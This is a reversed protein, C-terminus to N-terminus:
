LFDDFKAPLEKIETSYYKEISRMKEVDYKTVFNIAVGKRGWRGSRGIRHLYTHADKPIDYNVVVSVQQVDLGRATVNSSIMVRYKGNKFEDYASNRDEREMESHICCVPFNSQKMSHYLDIVRKVSNCYIISQSVSIGEYLDKLALTKDHDSEFSVFFQSIGELTMMEQKVLIKMPDRMIKSSIDDLEPSVTATFMVIQAEPSLQTLISKLQPQFGQTLIEDAEDLVAIKITSPDFMRRGMMDLVRGPCGILVQEDSRADRDIMQGGILLKTKLGTQKCLQDFVAQTQMALERTPSLILAQAVKEVTCREMTSICFAGTKGTGSQAQALVDKGQMVAPIAQKQIPSPKEFGASYIGRLTNMSLNLEDWTEAM